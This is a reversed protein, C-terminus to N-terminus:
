RLTALYAALARVDDDTLELAPMHAGPRQEAPDRLWRMLYPQSYKVGVYSLEPGIPTGAKGVVHCGYCGNVAFVSRGRAALSADQGHAAYAGVVLTVVVAAAAVRRRWRPDGRRECEGCRRAIPTRRLRALAIPHHCTECTGFTGAELRAQAADIEALTERADGTLRSLLDGVTTMGPAEAAERCEHAALAELDDDSVAVTRALTLRAWALRDRFEEATRGEATPAKSSM